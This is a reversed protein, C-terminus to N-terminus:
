NRIVSNQDYIEGIKKDIMHKVLEDDKMIPDYSGKIKKSQLDSGINMIFQKFYPNEKTLRNVTQWDLSSKVKAYTQVYCDDPNVINLVILGIGFANNLRQFEDFFDDDLPMDTVVLYGEHAWSSNSVAQFYYQRLNSFNLDKKLEFSFIKASSISLSKQLYITADEYDGLPLYAGVLDPHLWENLGKRSRSSSEHFITKTYAKFHDCRYVFTSLIPHLDREHYESKGGSIPTIVVLPSQTYHKLIFRLPRKSHRSFVTEPNDRIDINIRARISDWQKLGKTNIRKSLGSRIAEDWIEHCTLPRKKSDLVMEALKLFTLPKKM